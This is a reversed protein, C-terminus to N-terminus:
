AANLIPKQCGKPGCPRSVASCIMSRLRRSISTLPQVLPAEMQRDRVPQRCEHEAGVARLRHVRRVGSGRDSGSVAPTVPECVLRLPLRPWRSDSHWVREAPLPFLRGGEDDLPYNMRDLREGRGSDLPQGLPPPQLVSHRSAAFVEDTQTPPSRHAPDASHEFQSVRVQSHNACVCGSLASWGADPGRTLKHTRRVLRRLRSPRRSTAAPLAPRPARAASM